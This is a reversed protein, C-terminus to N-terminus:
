AAAEKGSTEDGAVEAESEQTVLDIFVDELSAHLARL